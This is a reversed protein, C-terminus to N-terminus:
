RGDSGATVGADSGCRHTVIAGAWLGFFGWMLVRGDQTAWPPFDFLSIVLLVLLPGLWILATVRDSSVRGFLIWGLPVLMVAFWAVGGLIGLESSVLLPVNHVPTYIGGHTGPSIHDKLALPYNGAGVGLLLNDRIIPYSLSYNHGRHAKFSEAVDSALNSSTGGQPDSANGSSPSSLGLRVYFAMPNSIIFAAWILAALGLMIGLKKLAARRDKGAEIWALLGVAVLAVGWGLSASRSFSTILGGTTAGFVIVLLIGAWPGSRKLVFLGYALLSSVALLLGLPNTHYTLGWTRYWSGGDPTSFTFERPIEGLLSLGLASEEVYQGLAVSAQLLGAALLTIAVAILAGRSEQVLVFYMACFVLTRLAIYGAQDVDVAWLVSLLSLVTLFVLPLSVYLPGYAAQPKPSVAWGTAYLGLGVLLPIDSLYIVPGAFEPLFNLETRHQLVWSFTLSSTGLAVAIM